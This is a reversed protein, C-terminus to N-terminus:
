DDNNNIDDLEDDDIFGHGFIEETIDDLEEDEFDDDQKVLLQHDFELPMAAKVELVRGNDFVLQGNVWTKEVKFNVKEGAAPSWGCKGLCEADTILHSEPLRRVLTLDAYYGVEISGRNLIGYVRAPGQSMLRSVLAPDRFLTLMLPLSFQLIPAGSVATLADGEKESLLHPAHDTAIMNVEGYECEDRLIRRDEKSKVSPNMKIRAGKRDYDEKSWLLHHPSIEFTAQIEHEENYDDILDVEEATSVHCIHIHRPHTEALELARRTAKECAMSSRIWSHMKLPVEGKYRAKAEQANEQVIRQDEAHIAIPIEPALDAFLHKIADKKDVLMNGTSSGMFLKVGPVRSYDVAKLEDLNSNTAGIFFAYNALSKEKAIRCKDQWAEITTTQPVTNPMDMYSTVGGAVAARSESAIDAKHTLGPERFHVHADIVGPMLLAGKGDVVNWDASAPIEGRGIAVIKKGEVLVFNDDGLASPLEVNHIYTIAM